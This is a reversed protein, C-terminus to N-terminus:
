RQKGSNLRIIKGPQVFGTVRYTSLKKLLMLYSSFGNVTAANTGFFFISKEDPLYEVLLDKPVFLYIATAYGWFFRYVTSIIKHMRFGLGILELEAFFGITLTRNFTLIKWFLSWFDVKGDFFKLLFHNTGPLRYFSYFCKPSVQHKKWVYMHKFFVSNTLFCFFINFDNTVSSRKLFTKM